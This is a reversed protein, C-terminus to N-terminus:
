AQEESTRAVDEDSDGVADDSVHLRLCHELKLEPRCSLLLLLCLLLLILTPSWGTIDYEFIHCSSQVGWQRTSSRSRSTSTSSVGQRKVVVDQVDKM